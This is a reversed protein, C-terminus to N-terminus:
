FPNENNNDFPQWHALSDKYQRLERLRRYVTWTIAQLQHPLIDLEKAARVYASQFFNYQAVTIQAMNNNLAAVNDPNQITIAIAHRDITVNTVIDPNLLNLFFSKSKLFNKNSILSYIKDENNLKLIKRAKIDQVLSRYRNKPNILFSLAFRKNSLWDTQPSYVAIIGAVVQVPLNFRGSLEKCYSHAENYWFMGEKLESVTATNYFKLINKVTRNLSLTDGKFKQKM